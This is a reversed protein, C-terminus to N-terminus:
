LRDGLKYLVAELKQIDTEDAILDISEEILISSADQPDIKTILYLIIKRLVKIKKM